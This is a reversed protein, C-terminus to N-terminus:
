ALFRGFFYQSPPNTLVSGSAEFRELQHRRHRVSTTSRAALGQIILYSILIKGKAKPLM